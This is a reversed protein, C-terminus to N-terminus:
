IYVTVRMWNLPTINRNLLREKLFMLHAQLLQAQLCYSAIITAQVMDHTLTCIILLIKLSLNVEYSSYRFYILDFNHVYMCVYIELSVFLRTM